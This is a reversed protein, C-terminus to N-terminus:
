DPNTEISDFMFKFCRFSLKVSVNMVFYIERMQTTQECRISLLWVIWRNDDSGLEFKQQIGIPGCFCSDRGGWILLFLVSFYFYLILTFYGSSKRIQCFVTHEHPVWDSVTLIHNLFYTKLVKVGLYDENLRQASTLNHTYMFLYVILM